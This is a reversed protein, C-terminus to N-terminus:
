CGSGIFRAPRVIMRGTGLVTELPGFVSVGSTTAVAVSGRFMLELTEDTRDRSGCSGISFKMWGDRECTAGCVTERVGASPRFANGVDGLNFDFGASEIPVGIGDVLSIRGWKASLRFMAVVANITGPGPGNLAPLPINGSPLWISGM